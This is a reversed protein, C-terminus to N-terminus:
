MQDEEPQDEELKVGIKPSFHGSFHGSMLIHEISKDFQHNPAFAASTVETHIQITM